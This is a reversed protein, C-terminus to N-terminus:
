ISRQKCGADAAMAAKRASTARSDASKLLSEAEGGDGRGQLDTDRGEAGGGGGKAGEGAGDGCAGGEKM